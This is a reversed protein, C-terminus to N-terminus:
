ASPAAARRARVLDTSSPSARWCGGTSSGFFVRRASTWRRRGPRGPRPGGAGRLPRLPGLLCAPGMRPRARDPRRARPCRARWTRAIARTTSASSRGSPPRGARLGGRLAAVGWGAASVAGLGTIVARRDRPRCQGDAARPKSAALRRQSSAPSAPWAVRVREQRGRPERISIGFEKELAVVLELADVSDLGLGDGFLPEDDAIREPTIGDLNLSTVIMKKLKTRIGDQDM